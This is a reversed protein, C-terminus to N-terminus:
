TRLASPSGSTNAIRSSLKSPVPAWAVAATSVIAARRAVKLRLYSIRVYHGAEAPGEEGVQVEWPGGLCPPVSVVRITRLTRVQQAVNMLLRVTVVVVSFRCWM